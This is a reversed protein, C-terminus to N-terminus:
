CLFDVVRLISFFTLLIKCVLNKLTAVLVRVAAAAAAVRGGVEKLDKWNVEFLFALINFLLSLFYCMKCIKENMELLKLFISFFIPLLSLLIKGSLCIFM